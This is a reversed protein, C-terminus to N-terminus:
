VAVCYASNEDSIVSGPLIMEPNEPKMTSPVSQNVNKRYADALPAFLRSDPAKNYRELLNKLEESTDGSM